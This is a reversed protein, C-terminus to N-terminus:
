HVVGTEMGEFEAKFKAVVSDLAESESKSLEGVGVEEAQRYCDRYMQLVYAAIAMEVHTLKM